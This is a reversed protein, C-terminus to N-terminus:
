TSSLTEIINLQTWIINWKSEIFQLKILNNVDTHKTHAYILTIKRKQRHTEQIILLYTVNKIQARILLLESRRQTEHKNWDYTQFLTRASAHPHKWPTDCNSDWGHKRYQWVCIYLGTLFRFIRSEQRFNLIFLVLFCPFETRQLSSLGGPCYIGQKETIKLNMM